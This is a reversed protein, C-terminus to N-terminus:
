ADSEDGSRFQNSIVHAVATGTFTLLVGCMTYWTWAIPTYFVVITMAAIGFFFGFMAAGERVTVRLIGLLFIGLLGGYTFSAISLALEVVAKPTQIFLMAVFVLVVCWFISISRSIILTRKETWTRRTLPLVLDIMTSSSLASISGSLTSMAAALLGAIILGRLGSPMEDIIFRSFVENVPISAGGFFTYLLAGVMLFLFFQLIIILGSTVLATQAKKLNNTALVRQIILQDTGHSAMSLFMGGLVSGALTYPESFFSAASDPNGFNFVLLKGQDSLDALISMVSGPLLDIVLFITAVAGALYLILQVVDTWIVARVGGLFVYILTLASLAAIAIMYQSHDVSGGTGGLILAIPIATTYLRVGDALLRTVIFVGSASRRLHPGFRNELFAYATPLEGKFYRPLLLSSVLIRGILYGITLQLFNFNSIYALGPISLFTLASTETAVVAFCVAWWPVAKESLFYDRVSKQRGGSLIGFVSIGLLYVAIVVSDLTDLDM